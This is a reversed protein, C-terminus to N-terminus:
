APDTGDVAGSQVVEECAWATGHATGFEIRTAPDDMVAPPTIQRALSMALAVSGGPFFARRGAAFVMVGVRREPGSDRSQEDPRGYVSPM